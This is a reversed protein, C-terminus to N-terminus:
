AAGGRGEALLSARLADFRALDDPSVASAGFLLLDLEALWPELTARARASPRGRELMERATWSERLELDGRRSLAVLLAFFSLRLALTLDGAARAAEARARLEALRAELDVPASREEGVGPAAALARARGVIARAVLWGGLVALAAVAIWLLTGAGQPDVDLSALAEFLRELARELLDPERPRLDPHELVRELAARVEDAGHVRESAAAQASM